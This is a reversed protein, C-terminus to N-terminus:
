ITINEKTSFKNKVSVVYWITESERTPETIELIKSVSKIYEKNKM